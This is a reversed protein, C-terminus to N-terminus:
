LDGLCKSLSEYKIVPYEKMDYYRRRVYFQKEFITGKDVIDVIVRIISTDGDRRIIRGITQLTKAKRSTALLLSNMQPFSIGEVSYGFTTFIVRANAKAKLFYENSVGGMLIKLIM